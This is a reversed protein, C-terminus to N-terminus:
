RITEWIEFEGPCSYFFAIGGYGHVKRDFRQSGCADGGFLMAWIMPQHCPIIRYAFAM